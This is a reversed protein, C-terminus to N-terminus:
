SDDANNKYAPISDNKITFVFIRTINDRSDFLPLQLIWLNAQHTFHQKKEQATFSCLKTHQM